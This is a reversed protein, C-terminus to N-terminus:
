NKTLFLIGTVLIHVILFVVAEGALFQNMKKWTADRGITWCIVHMDIASVVWLVALAVATVISPKIVERYIGENVPRTPEYGASTITSM